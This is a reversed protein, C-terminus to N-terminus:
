AILEVKARIITGDNLKIITSGNKKNINKITLGEKSKLLEKVEKM